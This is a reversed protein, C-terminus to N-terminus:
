TNGSVSSSSGPMSDKPLPAAVKLELPSEASKCGPERRDDGVFEAREDAEDIFVTVIPRIKESRTRIEPPNDQCPESHFFHGSKFCNRDSSPFFFGLNQNKGEGEEALMVQIQKVPDSAIDSSVEEVNQERAAPVKIEGVIIEPSCARSKKSQGTEAPSPSTKSRLSDM